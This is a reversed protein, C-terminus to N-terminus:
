LYSVVTCFPKLSVLAQISGAVRPAASLTVDRYRSYSESSNMMELRYLPCKLSVRSRRKLRPSCIEKLTITYRHNLFGFRNMKFFQKLQARKGGITSWSHFVFFNPLTM